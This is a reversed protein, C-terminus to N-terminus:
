ASVGIARGKWMLPEREAVQALPRVTGTAPDLRFLFESEDRQAAGRGHRTKRPEIRLVLADPTSEKAWSLILEVGARQGLEKGYRMASGAARLGGVIERISAVDMQATVLYAAGSKRAAREIALSNAEDADNRDKAKAPRALNNYPDILVLDAGASRAIASMANIDRQDEFLRYRGGLSLIWDGIMADLHHDDDSWTEPARILRLAAAGFRKDTAALRCIREEVPMELSFDVVTGGAELVARACHLALFTKFTGTPATICTIGKALVGGGIMDDIAPMGTSWVGPRPASLKAHAALADGTEGVALADDFTSVLGNAYAVAASLDVTEDWAARAIEGAAGILDRRHAAALVLRAYHEAHHIVPCRLMLETLYASGGVDKAEGTADLADGLTLVDVPSGAARLALMRAYVTARRPASFHAPRLYRAAVELAEPDVIAAGLIAEEAAAATPATDLPQAKM